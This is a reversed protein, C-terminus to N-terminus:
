RAAAINGQAGMPHIEIRRFAHRRTGIMAPQDVASRGSVM